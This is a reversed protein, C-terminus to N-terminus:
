QYPIMEQLPCQSTTLSDMVSYKKYYTAIEVYFPAELLAPFIWFAFFKFSHGPWPHQPCITFCGVWTGKPMPFLPGSYWLGECLGYIGYEKKKFYIYKKFQITPFTNNFKAMNHHQKVDYYTIGAYKKRQFRRKQRCSNQSAGLCIM